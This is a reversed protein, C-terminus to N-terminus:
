HLGAPMSTGRVERPPGVACALAEGSEMPGWLYHGQAQECGMARLMALQEATEVGEAVLGIELNRALAIVATVVAAYPRSNALSGVFSRDIKVGAIPFRHICSLSSYGTGFDDVHLEVGLDRIERMVAVAHDTGEIIVSETIELQVARPPVGTRELIDAIRRALDPVAFQKRSLNVSVFLGEAGPTR